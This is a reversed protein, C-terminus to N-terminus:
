PFFLRKLSVHKHLINWCYNDSDEYHSQISGALMDAFQLNKTSASDCFQTQLTTAVKKEFALNIGLYDHLSNGSEVKISRLDPLLIVEDYKCMEDILSLNIMYNYLKNSDKRIHELVNEKSVTIAILKISPNRNLLENAYKSFCIREERTMDSYKKEIKPPWNFKQYLKKILRKPLHKKDPPCVLTAITLYRSSGGKRYPKTLNWGLDGSEDVYFIASSM